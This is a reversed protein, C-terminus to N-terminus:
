LREEQGPASKVAYLELVPGILTLIPVLAPVNVLGNYIKALRAVLGRQESIESDEFRPAGVRLDGFGGDKALRRLEFVSLLRVPDISMARRAWVYARAVGRPLWGFGWLGFIPDPALSLRNPTALFVTGNEKLVRAAQQLVAKPDAAHELLDIAVVHQFTAGAFPLAEANACVLDCHVGAEKVRKRALVLWRLAVDCAVTAETRAAAVVFGGSGCGLELLEGSSSGPSLADAEFRGLSSITRRGKMEARLAGRIYGEVLDPHQHETMAWYERVSAEFDLDRCRQELAIAKQRDAEISIYADEAIRFDAIGLIIPFARECSACRYELESADLSGRCCPCCLQSLPLNM